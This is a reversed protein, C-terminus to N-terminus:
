GGPRKEGERLRSEICSALFAAQLQSGWDSGDGIIEFVVRGHAFAVGDSMWAGADGIGLPSSDPERREVVFREARQASGLEFARVRLKRESAQEHEYVALWARVPEQGAIADWDQGIADAADAAAGTWVSGRLVWPAAMAARPFAKLVPEDHRACGGAFMAPLVCAVLSARWPAAARFATM